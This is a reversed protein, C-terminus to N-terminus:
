EKLFVFPPHGCRHWEQTLVPLHTSPPHFDFGFQPYSCALIYNCGHGFEEQVASLINDRNSASVTLVLLLAGCDVGFLEKYAKQGILQRYFKIKKDWSRRVSNLTRVPETARDIEVFVFYRKGDIVLQFVADPEGVTGNVELFLSKNLFTHQGEYGEHQAFSALVCGMYTDHFPSGSKKPTHQSWLGHTKLLDNAKKTNTNILANSRPNETRKQWLGTEFLKLDHRLTVMRKDFSCKDTHTKAHFLYPTPLGVGGFVHNYYAIQIDSPVLTFTKNADAKDDPIDQQVYRDRRGLSDFKTKM